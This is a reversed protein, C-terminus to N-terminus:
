YCFGSGRANSRYLGIITSGCWIAFLIKAIKIILETNLHRVNDARRWSPRRVLGM